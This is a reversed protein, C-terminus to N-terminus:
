GFRSLSEISNWDFNWFYEESILFFIGFNKHFGFFESFSFFESVIKLLDSIHKYWIELSLIVSNYNFYDPVSVFILM